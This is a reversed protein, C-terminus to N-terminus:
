RQSLKESSWKVMELRTFSLLVTIFGSLRPLFTLDALRFFDPLYLPIAAIIRNNSSKKDM